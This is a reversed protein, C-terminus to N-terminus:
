QVELVHFFANSHTYRSVPIKMGTSIINCISNFAVADSIDRSHKNWQYDITLVLQYM